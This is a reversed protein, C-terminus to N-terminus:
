RYFQGSQILYPLLRMMAEGANCSASNHMEDNKAPNASDSVGRLIMYDFERTSGAREHWLGAVGAAETEVILTKGNTQLLWARIESEETAIVASGTGIPGAFVSFPIGGQTVVPAPEGNEAFFEAYTRQISAPARYFDGRREIGSATEKREDYNLVSTALVVDGPVVKASISGAIGMLVLLRPSYRELLDRAAEAASRSNPELAQTVAASLRGEASALSGEYFVRGGREPQVREASDGLLRRAASTEPPIVTVVALDRPKVEKVLMGKMQSVVWTGIPIPRAGTPKDFDIVVQEALDPVGKRIQLLIEQCEAIDVPHVVFTNSESGHLRRFCYEIVQIREEFGHGVPDTASQGKFLREGLPLEPILALNVRWGVMAANLIGAAVRALARRGDRHASVIVWTRASDPRPVVYLRFDARETRRHRDVIRAIRDDVEALSLQRSDEIRFVLASSYETVPGVGGAVHCRASTEDLLSVSRSHLEQAAASALTFGVESDVKPASENLRQTVWSALEGFSEWSVRRAAAVVERRLEESRKSPSSGTEALRVNLYQLLRLTLRSHYLWSALRVSLGNLDGAQVLGINPETLTAVVGEWALDFLSNGTPQQIEELWESRREGQALEYKWTGSFAAQLAKSSRVSRGREEASRTPNTALLSLDLIEDRIIKVEAALAAPVDEDRPCTALLTIWQSTKLSSRVNTLATGLTVGLSKAKREDDRSVPLNSVDRRPAVEYAAHRQTGRNAPVLVLWRDRTLVRALGVGQNESLHPGAGVRAVAGHLYTRVGATRANGLRGDWRKLYEHKVGHRILMVLAKETLLEPLSARGGEVIVNRLMEACLFEEAEGFHVDEGHRFGRLVAGPEEILIPVAIGADVALDLWDSVVRSLERRPVESGLHGAALDELQRLSYGVRLRETLSTHRDDDLARRGYNKLLERAPKEKDEYLDTFPTTLAAQVSSAAKIPLALRHAPLPDELCGKLDVSGRLVPQTGIGLQCAINAVESGFILTAQAPDPTWSFGSRISADLRDSWLSGLRTSVVFQLMRLRSSPTSLAGFSEAYGSNASLATWISDLTETALPRFSVLPMITLNSDKGAPLSASYVRIKVLDLASELNIGLGRGLMKIVWAEPHATFSAVELRAQAPSTLDSTSFGTVEKAAQEYVRPLRTTGLPWDVNYPRPLVSIASVISGCLAMSHRDDLMLYPPTPEVLDPAYWDRDVALVVVEVEAGARLLTERARFLSSGSVLVDDVLTVKQGSLFALNQDLVRDCLLPVQPRLLRVTALGDVFCTAKRAMTMIYGTDITSLREAFDSIPTTLGTAFSGLFARRGAM